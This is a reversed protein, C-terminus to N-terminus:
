PMVKQRQRELYIRVGIAALMALSFTGLLVYHGLTSYGALVFAGIVITGIACVEAVNTIAFLWPPPGEEAAIGAEVFDRVADSSHYNDGRRKERKKIRRFADDRVRTQVKRKGM